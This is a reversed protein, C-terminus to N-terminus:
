SYNRMFVSVFLTIIFVAGLLNFMVFYVANGQTAFNEPQTFIGTVSQGSWMVDTWGEQSVIQFLIFLSGGFSDFDYFDNGVTRPVLVDWEFPSDKFEGVCDTLNSVLGSGDNCKQFQGAFLNLISRRTVPPRGVRAAVLNTTGISLGLPETM